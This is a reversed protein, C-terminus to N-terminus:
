RQLSRLISETCHFMLNNSKRFEGVAPLKVVVNNITENEIDTVYEKTKVDWSGGFWIQAHPWPNEHSFIDQSFIPNQWVRHLDEQRNPLWGHSYMQCFKVAHEKEISLLVRDGIDSLRQGFM